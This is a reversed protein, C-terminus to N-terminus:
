RRMAADWHEDIKGDVIRFMDFWTTTYRRSADQPDPHERVFSIVVIDREASIDVIPAAVREAVPRPQGRRSFVSVFGERGSPVLPNHQIYRETLYHEARDMHLGEFVERFFDYVLRKNRTLVPDPSALMAEHNPNGVVPEQAAVPAAAMLWVLGIAALATRAVPRPTSAARRDHIPPLTKIM